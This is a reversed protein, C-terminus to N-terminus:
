RRRKRAVPLADAPLHLVEGESTQTDLWLFPLDPYAAELAPRGLGIEVMLHGEPTLHQRAGDIIRRILDLGDTGGAHALRPEAQYEPPFAAIAADTVYPPNALILDYRRKGVPAYLDGELLRVREELGYDEVNGRAVELAAPSLEVADVLAQAFLHAAIIALPAAGTCLDLVTGISAPEGLVADLGNAMLEGLYSRPVIVREDVYFRFDKIWAENVLYPAPKRTTVRAEVLDGLRQRERTTLRADLWPDIEDIPLKLAALIVFVAEDLARATGHGYVLEAANFRSVAYRLWDRITILDDAPSAPM